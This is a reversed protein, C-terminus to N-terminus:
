YRRGSFAQALEDGLDPEQARVVRDDSFTDHHGVTPLGAQKNLGAFASKAVIRKTSEFAEDNWTMVEDVQANVASRNDACLGCKVMENALEFARTLKVRYAAQEEAVKTNLTETTLLKGFESGEKGAEGWFQRWYKVVEPDLGEAILADLDNPDVKGESILTNLREAEKRVKPQARAVELDKSQQEPQTEVLGLSDSPKTDLHTQGDALRNAEDLM